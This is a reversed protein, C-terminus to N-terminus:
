RRADDDERGRRPITWWVILGAIALALAPFVLVYLWSTDMNRMRTFLTAASATRVSIAAPQPEAGGAVAGRGSSAQGAGAGTPAQGAQGAGTAQGAHGAHGGGDRGGVGGAFAGVRM